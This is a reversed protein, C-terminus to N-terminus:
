TVKGSGFACNQWVLCADGCEGSIRRRVSPGRCEDGQIEAEIAGSRSLYEAFNLSRILDPRAIAVRM